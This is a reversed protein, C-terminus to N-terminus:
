PAVSLSVIANPRCSSSFVEIARYWRAPDLRNLSNDFATADDNSGRAGEEGADDTEM